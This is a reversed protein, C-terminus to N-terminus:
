LPKINKLIDLRSNKNQQILDFIHDDHIFYVKAGCQMMGDLVSTFHQVEIPMVPEVSQWEYVKGKKEFTIGPLTYLYGGIDKKKFEEVTGWICVYAINQEYGISFLASSPMMFLSAIAKNETAFVVASQHIHDESSTLLEPLLPGTIKRISGHYVQMDNLIM